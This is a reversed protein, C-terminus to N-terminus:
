TVAEASFHRSTASSRNFGATARVTESAANRFLPRSRPRRSSRRRQERLREHFHDGEGNVLTADRRPARRTQEVQRTSSRASRKAACPTSGGNSRHPSSPADGRDQGRRYSRWGPTSGPPRTARAKSHSRRRSPRPSRSRSASPSDAAVTPVASRHRCFKPRDSLATWGTPSASRATTATRAGSMASSTPSRDKHACASVRLSAHTRHPGSLALRRNPTRSPDEAIPQHRQFRKELSAPMPRFLSQFRGVRGLPEFLDKTLENM